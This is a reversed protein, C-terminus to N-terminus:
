KQISELYKALVAVEDPIAPSKDTARRFRKGWVPMERSGHGVAYKEGDIWDMVKENPFGNYKKAIRTLDSPRVKLATAAPGDGIGSIGHCSVCHQSYLAKGREAPNTTGAATQAHATSAIALFLLATATLFLSKGPRAPMHM